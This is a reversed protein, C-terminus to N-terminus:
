GHKIALNALTDAFADCEAIAQSLDDLIMKERIVHRADLSDDHVLASMAAVYVQDADKATERLKRTASVIEAYAHKRLRPVIEIMRNTCEVLMDMLRRMPPTPESVKFMLCAHAAANNLAVVAHLQSSLRHLDERDIPTVFTKALADDMARVLMDGQQECLAAAERAQEASHTRNAFQGLAQAGEFAVKAHQEVFGYFHDERPFFFRLVGQLAMFLLGKASPAAHSWTSSTEIAHDYRAPLKSQTL